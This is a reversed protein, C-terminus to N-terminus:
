IIESLPYSSASVDSSGSDSNYSSGGGGICKVPFPSYQGDCTQYAVTSATLSTLCYLFLTFM